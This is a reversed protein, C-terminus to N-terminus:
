GKRLLLTESKLSNKVYRDLIINIFPRSGLNRGLFLAKHRIIEQSKYILFVPFVFYKEGKGPRIMGGPDTPSVIGAILFEMFCAKKQQRIGGQPFILFGAGRRLRNASRNEQANKRSLRQWLGQRSERARISEAIAPPM